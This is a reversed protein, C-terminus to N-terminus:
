YSCMECLVYSSVFITITSVCLTSKTSLLATCVPASATQTAPSDDTDLMGVAGGSADGFVSFTADDVCDGNNVFGVPGDNGSDQKVWLAVTFSEVHNKEFWNRM